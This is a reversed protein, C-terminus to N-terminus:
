KAIRSNSVACNNLQSPPWTVVTRQTISLHAAFAETLRRGQATVLDDVRRLLWMAANRAALREVPRRRQVGVSADVLADLREDTLDAAFAEMLFAVVLTVSKSMGAVLSEFTTETVFGKVLDTRLLM